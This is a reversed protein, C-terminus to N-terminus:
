PHLMELFIGSRDYYFSEMYLGFLCRCKDDLSGGAAHALTCGRVQPWSAEKGFPFGVEGKPLLYKRYGQRILQNFSIQDAWKRDSAAPSSELPKALAEWGALFEEFLAARVAFTGANLGFPFLKKHPCALTPELASFEPLDSPRGYEPVVIVDKGELAFDSFWHDLPKLAICDADLYVVWDYDRTDLYNRARYRWSACERYYDATDRGEPQPGASSLETVNALPLLFLPAPSNHFICTSVEPMRRLLSLTLMKALTRSHCNNGPDFAVTYILIRPM